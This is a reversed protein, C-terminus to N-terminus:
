RVGMGCIVGAGFSLVVVLVVGAMVWSGLRDKRVQTRLQVSGM